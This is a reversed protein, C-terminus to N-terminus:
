LLRPGFDRTETLLRLRAAGRALLQASRLIRQLSGIRLKLIVAILGIDRM